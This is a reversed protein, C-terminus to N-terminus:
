NYREDLSRRLRAAAERGQHICAPIGVGRFAAGAAVIGPTHAALAADVAAARDLHGPRYQPFAQHWRTVRVDSPEAKLGMTTALEDLLRDVLDHDDLDLARADGDRGASVRLIATDPRALHAWKSSAWSCATMLLREPKPVLFGTADLPRDVGDSPVALTVMVVSSYEIATLLEAAEPNTARLMPGAAHAPAALVVGDVDLAEGDLGVRWGPELATVPTRLRVDVGADGLDATLAGVLRAMGGPLAFFVPASPDPPNAALHAALGETLSTSRAAVAALQPASAQLSLRDADGANIGGLLPDVLRELVEDGYRRRIYAGIAVDGHLPEGPIDPEQASRAAGEPSVIPSGDLADRRAPAGLVLGPPISRLAGRSWVYASGLAPTVLDGDLGLERCLDVAWPVRALFADPGTDVDLGAFPTTEIKGGLRDGAELLVVDIGARALDRAAVLGTIGGGVVAVRRTM